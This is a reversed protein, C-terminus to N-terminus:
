RQLETLAHVFPESSAQIPGDFPRGMDLVMYIAGALLGSSLVFGTVVLANKPARYGYSAMTMALWVILAIMLPRPVSGETRDILSWRARLLTDVDAKAQDREAIIQPDTLKLAAIKDRIDHLTAEASKNESPLAPREVDRMAVVTSVYGLLEGRAPQADPGLDRLSRDLLILDTAYSRVAKEVDSFNGSASSVLLGLVLSSLLGFINAIIRVIDLTKDDLHHAPLREYTFLAGLSAACLCGFTILAITMEDTLGFM